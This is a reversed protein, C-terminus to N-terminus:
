ASWCPYRTVLFLLSVDCVLLFLSSSSSIGRKGKRTHWSISSYQFGNVPKLPSYSYFDTNNCQWKVLNVGIVMVYWTGSVTYIM